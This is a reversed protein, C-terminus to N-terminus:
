KKIIKQTITNLDADTISAIYIGSDINSLNIQLKPNYESDYKTERYVTKGTLNIIKVVVETQNTLKSCDIFLNSSFPNPYVTVSPDVTIENATIEDKETNLGQISLNDIAWGWGSVSKDSALRFRFLVTDGASFFNTETLNITNKWFMNKNGSASSTSSKLTSSFKSAWESKVGSDYGDIFPHWNKGGDKSGEVIVFDWFYKNTYKVGPESPEVLVVEDFTMKGNEKLIVPTNLQAILSYRQNIVNSLQYPHNTHLNGDSFGAPTDMKFDTTSFDTNVLNFDTTYSEVPAKLESVHVQYFGTKPLCQVNKKTSNDKAIIRYEILDNGELKCNLNLNGSFVDNAKASLQVPKQIVNNIKYEVIVSRIGLNDTAVALLNIVPNTGSILKTPNHQLTPSYNDPGVRFNLIRKPAQRPQTFTKNDATTSKFYYQVKGLYSNLPIKGEFTKSKNNYKLTVSDKTFFYNTSYVVQVLSNALHLKNLFKTQVPLEKAMKECDKIKQLKYSIIDWGIKNLVKLTNGGANHNATGRCLSPNMLENTSATSKLHYISAGSRWKVPAYIKAKNQNCGLTCNVNLKNSILQQHLQVSPSSFLKKDTIQQNKSNYIYYDYASPNNGANNIKGRGNEDALFGSIGLGHAIEHLVVSVFDYKTAPTNGDTGFYWPKKSDFSCIIDADKEGNLSKGSLKEALAIPYYVDSIPADNFNKHFSVPGSLALISGKMNKWNATVMIPVSSSISKEYISIAYEFAVKAGEPFNVYNVVIECKKSEASKLFLPPPTFIKNVENLAINVPFNGKVENEFDRKQGAVNSIAVICLFSILTWKLKM